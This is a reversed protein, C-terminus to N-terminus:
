IDLMDLMKRETEENVSYNINEKIRKLFELGESVKASYAKSIGLLQAAYKEDTGCLGSETYFDLIEDKESAPFKEHPATSDFVCVSLERIVVMDLSNPDFSCYYIETDFGRENASRWLNKMFTSKGTGPRGKIFYRKDLDETLNDIFNIPKEPASAGFFRKVCSGSGHGTNDGLIESIVKNGFTNLRDFDINDLYIKEWDDHIKKAEGYATYLGAHDKDTHPGTKLREYFVGTDGAICGELLESNMPNLILEGANNKQAFKKIIGSAAGESVGSVIYVRELQRATEDYFSVYGGSTNASLFYKKM